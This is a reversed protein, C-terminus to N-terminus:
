TVLCEVSLDRELRAKVSYFFQTLVELRRLIQILVSLFLVNIFSQLSVRLHLTNSPAEEVVMTLHSLILHNHVTHQVLSLHPLQHCSPSVICPQSMSHYRPEFCQTFLHGLFSFARHLNNPPSLTGLDQERKRFVVEFVKQCLPSIKLYQQCNGQNIDNQAKSTM